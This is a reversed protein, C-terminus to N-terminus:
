IEESVRGSAILHRLFTLNNKEAETLTPPLAYGVHFVRVTHTEHSLHELRACHHPAQSQAQSSACRHKEIRHLVYATILCGCLGGGLFFYFM